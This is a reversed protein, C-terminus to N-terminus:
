NKKKRGSIYDDLNSFEGAKYASRADKIEQNVKKNKELFDFEKIIENELIDAIKIKEDLSIKSISEKLSQFPVSINVTARNM